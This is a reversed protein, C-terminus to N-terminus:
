VDGAWYGAAAVSGLLRDAHLLLGLRPLPACATWAHRDVASAARDLQPHEPLLAVPHFCWVGLPTDFAELPRAFDRVLQRLASLAAYAKTLAGLARAAQERDLADLAKHRPAFDGRALGVLERLRKSAEDASRM